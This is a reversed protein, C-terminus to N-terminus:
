SVCSTGDKRKQGNKGERGQIEVERRDEEGGRGGERKGQREWRSDGDMWLWYARDAPKNFLLRFAPERRAVPFSAVPTGAGFVSRFIWACLCVCM